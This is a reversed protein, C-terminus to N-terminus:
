FEIPIYLRDEPKTKEPNFTKNESDYVLRTTNIVAKTGDCVWKEPVNGKNGTALKKRVIGRITEGKKMIIYETCWIKDGSKSYVYCENKKGTIYEVTGPKKKLEKKQNDAVMNELYSSFPKRSPMEGEAVVASRPLSVYSGINKDIPQDTYPIVGM